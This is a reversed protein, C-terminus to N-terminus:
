SAVAIGGLLWDRHSSLLEQEGTVGPCAPQTQQGPDAANEKRLASTAPQWPFRFRPEEQADGSRWQM